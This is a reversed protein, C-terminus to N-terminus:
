HSKQQVTDPIAECRGYRASESQLQSNANLIEVTRKYRQTEPTITIRMRMPTKGVYFEDTVWTNRDKAYTQEEGVAVGKDYGRVILFGKNLEAQQSKALKAFGGNAMLFEKLVESEAYIFFTQLEASEDFCVYEDAMRDLGGAKYLENFYERATQAGVARALLLGSAVIFLIKATKMSIM